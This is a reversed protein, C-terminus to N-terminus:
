FVLVDETIEIEASGVLKIDEFNWGVTDFIAHDKVFHDKLIKDGTFGIGALIPEFLELGDM